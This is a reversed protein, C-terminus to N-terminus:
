SCIWDEAQECWAKDEASDSNKLREIARQILNIGELTWNLQAANPLSM